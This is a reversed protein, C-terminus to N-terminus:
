VRSLWRQPDRLEDVSPLMGPASFARNLTAVDAADIVARCFAAGDRYQAMKLDMGLLKQAVGFMGAAERRANFARRISAYTPVVSTGVRDMMVDAHGELLAMVANVQDFAQQQEPTGFLSRIGEADPWGFQLEEGDLLEGILGLLHGRLWPATGFQFRHTEEHLCVWLRFDRPLVGLRQEVAVVNPAVLLLREPRYFPDFQGLIRTGLVAFVGGAQVGLTKARAARWPNDVPESPGAAGELLAQASQSIATMWGARDVVLVEAEAPRELETVRRVHETATTAATRLETVVARADSATLRPGAPVLGAGTRAALEWDVAPLQEM